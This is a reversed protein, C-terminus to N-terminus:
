AKMDKVINYEEHLEKDSMANLRKRYKEMRQIRLKMGIRFIEYIVRQRQGESM